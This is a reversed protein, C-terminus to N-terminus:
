SQKLTHMPPAERISGWEYRRHTSQLRPPHYRVVAAFKWSSTLQVSRPGYSQM